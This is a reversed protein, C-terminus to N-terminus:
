VVACLLKARLFSQLIDALQFKVAHKKKQLKAWLIALEALAQALEFTCFTHPKTPPAQPFFICEIGKWKM